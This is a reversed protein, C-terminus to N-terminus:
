KKIQDDIVDNMVCINWCLTVSINNWIGYIAVGM